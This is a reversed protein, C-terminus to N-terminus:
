TPSRDHVWRAPPHSPEVLASPPQNDNAGTAHAHFLPVISRKRRIPPVDMDVGVWNKLKESWKELFHFGREAKSDPNEVLQGGGAALINRKIADMAINAEEKSMPSSSISGSPGDTYACSKFMLECEVEQDAHFVIENPLGPADLVFVVDDLILEAVVRKGTLGTEEEPLEILYRDRLCDIRFFERFHQPKRNQLSDHLEPYKDAPYKNKLAELDLAGWFHDTHVEYEGRRVAGSADRTKGTKLCIDATRTQTLDANNCNARIRLTTGSDLLARKPTDIQRTLLHYGELSKRIWGKDVFYSKINAFAESSDKQVLFKIEVESVDTSRENFSPSLSASAGSPLTEINGSNESSM